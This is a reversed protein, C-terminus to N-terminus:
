GAAERNRRRAVATLGVLGSMMLWAAAPLPVAPPTESGIPRAIGEPFEPSFVVLETGNGTGDDSPIHLQVEVPKGNIEMKIIDSITMTALEAYPNKEVAESSANMPVAQHGDETEFMNITRANAAVPLALLGILPLANIVKSTSM